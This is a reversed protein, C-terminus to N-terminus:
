QRVQVPMLLYQLWIESKEECSLWENDFLCQWVMPSVAHDTSLMRVINNSSIKAAVKAFDAVYSANMAIFQGPKCSLSKDEPWIQDINPFTLDATAWVEPLWSVSSLVNGPKDKFFVIGGDDIEAVVAKRSPAKTFAKPSLRICGDEPAFYAESAPLYCRFCRHGDVAAIRIANAQKRIDIACIPGKSSDNSAAFSAGWLISPPLAAIITM